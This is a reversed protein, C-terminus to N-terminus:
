AGTLDSWLKLWDQPMHRRDQEYEYLINCNYCRVDLDTVPREGSVIKRRFDAVANKAIKKAREKCGDGKVHNITLVRVDSCGCRACLPLKSKAVTQLAAIKLRLLKTAERELYHTRRADPNKERWAKQKELWAQRDDETRNNHRERMRALIRERNRQYYERKRARDREVYNPLM